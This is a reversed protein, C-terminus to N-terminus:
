AVRAPRGPCLQRWCSEVAGAVRELDVETMASGSPLCLGTEFIRRAVTGGRFRCGAFVPQLHLPKWVRRCEINERELTERLEECGAGFTHPDVRIVTLWRNSRSNPAEALFSIGPLQGLREKYFQFNRRRAAVRKDLVDMQALGIAALVNSMRYNFGIESHQYYPAQDRAQTALFRAHDILESDNSCLMGGGSTTIIKNGNFSFFSAWGLQGVSRGKRTTGLAEAADEIVPIEYKSAITTIADMDAAQGFIDVAVIAKPLRGHGACDALEEELLGPDLNWTLPDSDLFVPVGREYVVPNASACFTFTPCVIEDGPQLGLHRVALHLAATGSSVALAHRRGVHAAFRKEFEDLHPGAPAVWGSKLVEDLRTRERDSIHPPSLYIRRLAPGKQSQRGSGHYSRYWEVFRAVGEEIPTSPKFGVDRMLDDVDAYTEPVDGPQMPLFNKKAKVGLCNELTEIFHKLEVPQNNGINYIKCPAVAAAGAAHDGGTATSPSPVRDIVRVVGEVIDDIYTFDRRMRGHNFVDIPRRELIAKTFLYLAMDPRGWPGYVTFFRLGTAPLGFLHSYTHAMLENARKTAAYLSVPRDVNDAVSFPLKTNAGYVSSSSAFVLHGIGSHRCGELVNTFGVLNSDVYAHPNELSYRVGAQAALHVVADFRRSEFLAATAPRDALDLKEFEFGPEPTLQALRDKKLRVDYYDNLNDVGVVRDGRGLLRRSLHFGIFGAAGTVLINAMPM